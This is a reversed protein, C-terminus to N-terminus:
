TNVDETSREFRNNIISLVMNSLRGANDIQYPSYSLMKYQPRQARRKYCMGWDINNLISKRYSDIELVFDKESVNLESLIENMHFKNMLFDWIKKSKTEVIRELSFLINSDWSVARMLDMFNYALVREKHFTDISYTMSSLAMGIPILEKKLIKKNAFLANREKIMFGYSKMANLFVLPFGYKLYRITLSEMNAENSSLCKALDEGDFKRIDSDRQETLFIGYYDRAISELKRSLRVVESIANQLFLDCSVLNYLYNMEKEYTLRKLSKIYRLSVSKYDHFLNEDEHRDLSNRIEKVIDDKYHVPDLKLLETIYKMDVGKIKSNGVWIKLFLNFANGVKVYENSRPFLGLAIDGSNLDVFVGFLNIFQAEKDTIVEIEIRNKYNKDKSKFISRGFDGKSSWYKSNSAIQIIEDIDIIKKYSSQKDTM